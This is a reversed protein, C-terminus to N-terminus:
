RRYDISEGRPLIYWPGILFQPSFQPGNDFTSVVRPPSADWILLMRLYKLVMCTVLSQLSCFLFTKSFSYPALFTGVSLFPANYSQSQGIRSLLVPLWAFWLTLPFCLAEVDIKSALLDSSNIKFCVGNLLSWHLFIKWNVMEKNTIKSVDRTANSFFTELM